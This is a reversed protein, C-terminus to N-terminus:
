RYMAVWARQLLWLLCQQLCYFNCCLLTQHTLLIPMTASPMCRLLAAAPSVVADILLCCYIGTLHGM